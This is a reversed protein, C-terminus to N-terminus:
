MSDSVAALRAVFADVHSRDYGQFFKAAPKPKWGKIYERYEAAPGELESQGAALANLLELFEDVHKKSYGGPKVLPFEVDLLPVLKKFQDPDLSTRHFATSDALEPLIEKLQVLVEDLLNDVDIMDYGERFKTVQFRADVITRPLTSLEAQDARQAVQSLKELLTDVEETDYGERFKAAQFRASDITAVLKATM